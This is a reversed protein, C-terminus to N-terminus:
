MVTSVIIITGRVIMHESGSLHVLTEWTDHVPDPFDRWGIIFELNNNKTRKDKVADVFYQPKDSRSAEFPHGDITGNCRVMPKNFAIRLAFHASM